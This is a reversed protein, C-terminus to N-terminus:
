AKSSVRPITKSAHGDPGYLSSGGADQLINLMQQNHQLRHQILQGNLTNLNAVHETTALLTQWLASCGADAAAQEAGQRDLSYGLTQQAKRRTLESQELAQFLSQKEEAIASLQEGDIKGEALLAQERELLSVMRELRNQQQELHHQLSM